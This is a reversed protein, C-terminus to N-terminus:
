NKLIGRTVAQQQRSILNKLAQLALLAAIKM